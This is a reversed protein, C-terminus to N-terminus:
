KARLRRRVGSKVSINRPSHGREGHIGAVSRTVGHIRAARVAAHPHAEVRQASVWDSPLREGIILRRKRSARQSQSGFWALQEVAVRLATQNQHTGTFRVVRM